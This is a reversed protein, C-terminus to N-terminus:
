EGEHRVYPYRTRNLVWRNRYEAFRLTANEIKDLWTVEADYYRTKLCMEQKTM